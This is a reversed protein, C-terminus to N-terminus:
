ILKIIEKWLQGAYHTNAHSVDTYCYEHKLLGNKDMLEAPLEIFKCDTEIAITRMEQVLLNWILVRERESLLSNGLGEGSKERFQLLGPDHSIYNKVLDESKPPPPPLCYVKKGSKKFLDLYKKYGDQELIRHMEASIEQLFIPYKGNELFKSEEDSEDIFQYDFDQNILFDVIALHGQWIILVNEVQYISNDFIFNWYEENPPTYTGIGKSTHDDLVAFGRKILQDDLASAMSSRHSHGLLISNPASSGIIEWEKNFRKKLIKFNFNKLM